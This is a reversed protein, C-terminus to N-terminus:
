THHLQITRESCDLRFAIYRFTDHTPHARARARANHSACSQSIMVSSKKFFLQRTNISTSNQM